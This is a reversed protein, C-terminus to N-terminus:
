TELIGEEFLRSIKNLFAYTYCFCLRSGKSRLRNGKSTHSRVAERVSEERMLRQKGAPTPCCPM